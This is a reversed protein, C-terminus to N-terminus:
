GDTDAVREVITSSTPVILREVLPPAHTPPSPAPTDSNRDLLGCGRTSLFLLILLTIAIGRVLGRSRGDDPTRVKTRLWGTRKSIIPGGDSLPANFGAIRQDDRGSM